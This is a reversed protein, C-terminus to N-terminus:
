RRTFAVVTGNRAEIYYFMGRYVEVTGASSVKETVYSVAESCEEYRALTMGVRLKGFDAGCKRQQEAEQDRQRNLAAEQEPTTPRRVQSCPVQVPTLVGNVKRMVECTEATFASGAICALVAALILQCPKM